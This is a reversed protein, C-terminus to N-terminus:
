GNSRRADYACLWIENGLWDIVKYKLHIAPRALDTECNQAELVKMAPLAGEPVLNHHIMDGVAYNEM